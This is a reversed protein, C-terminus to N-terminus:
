CNVLGYGPVEGKRMVHFCWPYDVSAFPPVFGLRAAMLEFALRSLHSSFSGVFYSGESLLFVDLLASATVLPASALGQQVRFELFWDSFFFSRDLPLTAVTLGDTDQAEAAVAEDDTALFVRSVGYRSQLERVRVLYASWPLCSPRFNSIEAHM